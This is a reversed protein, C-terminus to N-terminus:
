HHKGIDFLLTIGKHGLKALEPKDSGMMRTFFPSFGSLEALANRLKNLAETRQDLTEETEDQQEKYLKIITIASICEKAKADLERTLTQIRKALRTNDVIKNEIESGKANLRADFELRLSEMQEQLGKVVSKEESLKSGLELFRDRTSTNRERSANLLFETVKNRLTPTMDKLTSDNVLALTLDTLAQVRINSGLGIVDKAGLEIPDADAEGELSIAYEVAKGALIIYYGDFIETDLVLSERPFTLTPLGLLMGIDSETVDVLTEREDEEAETPRRVIHLSTPPKPTHSM